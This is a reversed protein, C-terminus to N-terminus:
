FWGTKKERGETEVTWSGGSDRKLKFNMRKGEVSGEFDAEKHRKAHEFLVDSESDDLQRLVRLGYQDGDVTHNHITPM